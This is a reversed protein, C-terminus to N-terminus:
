GVLQQNQCYAVYDKKATWEGLDLSEKTPWFIFLSSALGLVALGAKARGKSILKSMRESIGCNNDEPESGLAAITISSTYTRPSPSM